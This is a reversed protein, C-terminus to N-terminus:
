RGLKSMLARGNPQQDRFDEASLIYIGPLASDNGAAGPRWALSWQAAGNCAGGTAAALRHRVAGTGRGQERDVADGGRKGSGRVVDLQVHIATWDVRNVWCAAWCVQHRPPDRLRPSAVLRGVVRDGANKENRAGDPRWAAERLGPGRPGTGCHTNAFLAAAGHLPRSPRRWKRSNSHQKLGTVRGCPGIPCAGARCPGGLAYPRDPPWQGIWTAAM